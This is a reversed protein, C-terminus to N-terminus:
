KSQINIMPSAGDAGTWYWGPLQGNWKKAKELEIELEKARLVEPTLSETLMKNADAQAQARLKTAEAEAQAAAIKKQGEAETSKVENTIKASQQIAAQADAMAKTAEVPLRVESNLTLRTIILGNPLFEDQIAKEACALWEDKKEGYIQVMSYGGVCANIANRTTDRVRGDILMNMDPGYTRIMKEIDEDKEALRYSLAFDANVKQGDLGQFTISEDTAAGETASAAWVSRQEITNLTYFDFGMSAANYRGGRLIKYTGSDEGMTDVQVVVTGPTVTTCGMLALLMLLLPLLKKM